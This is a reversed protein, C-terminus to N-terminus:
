FQKIPSALAIEEARLTIYIDNVQHKACDIYTSRCTKDINIIFIKLIQIRGKLLEGAWHVEM